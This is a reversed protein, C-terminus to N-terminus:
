LYCKSGVEVGNLFLTSRDDIPSLQLRGRGEVAELQRATLEFETRFLVTAQASVERAKPSEVVTWGPLLSGPLHLGPEVKANSPSRHWVGLRIGRDGM